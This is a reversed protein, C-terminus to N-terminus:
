KKLLDALVDCVYNIHKESVHPGIPLFIVKKDKCWQSDELQLWTHIGKARLINNLEKAYPEWLGIPYGRLNAFDEETMAINFFYKSEKPIQLREHYIKAQKDKLRSIRKFDFFRHILAYVGLLRGSKQSDGIIDNHIVRSKEAQLYLKKKNLLFALSLETQFRTYWFLAQLQYIFASWAPTKKYNLAEPKGYIFSGPLPSVKRFSDIVFHNESLIEVKEPNVMVHVSDEIVIIDKDIQNMWEIKKMLPNKIGQNHLVFVVKANHTQISELLRSQSIQFNKDVQYVECKYGHAEINNMVDVCHFSPVLVVSGKSVNKAILLDWLADEFSLYFHRKITKPVTYWTFGLYSILNYHETPVLM